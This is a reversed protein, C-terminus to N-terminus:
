TNLNEYAKFDITVYWCPKGSPQNDEASLSRATLSVQIGNELIWHDSAAPEGPLSSALIDTSVEAFSPYAIPAEPQGLEDCLTDFLKLTFTYDEEIPNELSFVYQIQTTEPNELVSTNDSSSHLIFVAGTKGCLTIGDLVSLQFQVEGDNVHDEPSEFGMATYADLTPTGILGATHQIPSKFVSTSPAACSACLLVFLVVEFVCFIKRM